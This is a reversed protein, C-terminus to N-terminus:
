VMKMWQCHLNKAKLSASVNEGQHHTGQAYCLRWLTTYHANYFSVCEVIIKKDSTVFNDNIETQNITGQRHLKGIILFYKSGEENFWRTKKIESNLFEIIKELEIKQETLEKELYMYSLQTYILNSKYFEEELNTITRELDRENKWTQLGHVSTHKTTETCHVEQLKYNCISFSKSRLWNLGERQKSNGRYRKIGQCETKKPHLEEVGQDWLRAINCMPRNMVWQLTSNKLSNLSQYKQRHSMGSSLVSLVLHYPWRDTHCCM